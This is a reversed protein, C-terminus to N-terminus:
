GFFLRKGFVLWIIAGEINLYYFRCYLPVTTKVNAAKNKRLSGLRLPLVRPTAGNM